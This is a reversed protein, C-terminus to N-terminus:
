NSMRKFDETEVFYMGYKNFLKFKMTKLIDKNELANKVGYREIMTNNFKDRIKKCKAPHDVGYNELWTEKAKDKFKEVQLAHKVGYKELMTKEHKDVACKQCYYKNGIDDMVVSHYDHYDMIKERSCKDCICTIKAHSGVSLNNVDIKIIQGSKLNMNLKKNYFQVMNNNIRLEIEKEKIM